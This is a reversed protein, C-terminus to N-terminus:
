PQSLLYFFLRLSSRQTSLITVLTVQGQTEPPIRWMGEYLHCTLAASYCRYVVSGQSDPVINIMPNVQNVHRPADQRGDEKCDDVFGWLKEQRDPGCPLKWLERDWRGDPTVLHLSNASCDSVLFWGDQLTAVGHVNKIPTVKKDFINTGDQIRVKVMTNIMTTMVLCGDQMAPMRWPYKRLRNLPFGTIDILDIWEYFCYGLALISSTVATISYCQENWPISNLNKFSKPTVELIDIRNDGLFTLAVKWTNGPGSDIVALRHPNISFQLSNLHDGQLNFLKVSKSSNDIMLIHTDSLLTVIESIPQSSEGPCAASFHRRESLSVPPGHSSRANSPAATNPM